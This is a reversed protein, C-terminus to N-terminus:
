ISSSRCPPLDMRDELKFKMTPIFHMRGRRKEKEWRSTEQETFTRFALHTALTDEPQFEVEKFRTYEFYKWNSVFHCVTELGPIKFLTLPAGTRATGSKLADIM